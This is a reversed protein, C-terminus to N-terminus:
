PGKAPPANTPPPQGPIIARLTSIPHFILQFPTLVMEAPWWRMEVRPQGLTGTIKYEFIKAFPKLVTSLLPGVVPAKRGVEAEMLADVRGGFDAEGRYKMTLFQSSIKLDESSIISNTITFTASAENARSEGLGNSIADLPKSFVGFLPIDWILGDHLDIQGRGFWSKPDETDARSISLHANLTGELHNTPSFLDRMMSGLKADTIITDFSFNAGGDPRFTFLASGTLKGEYFSGQAESLTLHQGVWHVGTSVHALNFKQWRFPGGEVQFHADAPVDDRLPIIGNARITPPKLFHYPELTREVVPGIPNFIAKLEMTSAGNTLYLRRTAFDVRVEDASAFRGNREVRPHDVQLFRNTYQMGGELRTVPEGRFALNTATVYGRVGTREPVEWRGWVDVDVVPPQSLALTDLVQKGVTGMFPLPRLAQPDIESHVGFYFDGNRDSGTHKLRLQGERRVAVLDPVDWTLNAYNVHSRCSMMPITFFGSPGSEFDAKVWITPFVEGNWDPHQDTWAPLTLGGEAHVLPPNIWSCHSLFDRAVAPLVPDLSHADFDAWGKFTFARSAVNLGAQGELKGQYLESYLNTITLEPARWSGGCTVEKVQFERARAGKLRCTWGLAYPELDAWWAWSADAQLAGHTATADMRTNLRLEEAEGWPTRPGALRLETEGDLPIANTLSHAWRATFQANTAQVWKTAFQETQLELQCHMLDPDATDVAGQADLRLRKLSGWRTRADGALLRFEARPAGNTRDAPYLQVALNGNTLTGWPTQAGLTTLSLQADFSRPDRGDGHLTLELQPTDFLRTREIVNALKSLHEQVRVPQAQPQAQFIKWDRVASANTVSGSLQVAAGAFSAIFHDLQVLDNPLFRVQTQIKDVSLKRPPQNTEALPWTFKGERIILGDVAFQFRRLAAHNLKVEVEAASLSPSNTPVDARGFRVNEAVIGRYYRLRLRTFQLDVGRAHLNDLLSRKLFGPLGFEHLVFGTIVLLFVLMLVLLRMGRFLSRCRRWGRSQFRSAM